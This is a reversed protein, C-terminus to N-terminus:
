GRRPLTLHTYSVAKKEETWGQAKLAAYHKNLEAVVAERSLGPPVPAVSVHLGGAPLRWSCMKMTEGETAGESIPMEAPIGEGTAGVGGVESATLLSCVPKGQAGANAVTFLILVGLLMARRM